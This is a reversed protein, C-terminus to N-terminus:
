TELIYTEKNISMIINENDEDNIKLGVNKYLNIAKSHSKKVKLFVEELKLEKFGLEMILKMAKFGVGKGWYNKEGIFIHFEARKNKIGTLQVNGIYDDDNVCIAFRAENKRLTVAKIWSVEDELTIKKSPRSGTNIWIEPNNRWKYSIKADEETLPRIKVRM